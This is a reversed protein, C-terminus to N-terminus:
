LSAADWANDDPPDDQEQFPINVVTGEVQLGSMGSTVRQVLVSSIYSVTSAVTDGEYMDQGVPLASQEMESSQMAIGLGRSQVKGMIRTRHIMTMFSATTYNSLHQQAGNGDPDASDQLLVQM